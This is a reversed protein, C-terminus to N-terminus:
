AAERRFQDAIFELEDAIQEADLSTYLGNAAARIIALLVPRREDGHLQTLIRLVQDRPSVPAPSVIERAIPLFTGTDDAPM